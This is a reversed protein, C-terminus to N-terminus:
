RSIHLNPICALRRLKAFQHLDVARSFFGHSNLGNINGQTCEHGGKSQFVGKALLERRFLEGPWFAQENDEGAVM